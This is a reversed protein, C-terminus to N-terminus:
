VGGGRTLAALRQELYAREAANDTLALAERYAAAAEGRRGARRLLDARAAPLLHYRALSGEAALADLRALGAELAGTMALAVAQNLAVVPSPQMRMLAGYLAAIQAWDTEAAHDARAHCAAIAAQVQYPGPARLTLAQDLLALGREIQARDWRARAQEELTVLRGEADVRADRRSDQLLMLASLGLLEAEGPMLTVLVDALRIAERCLERRILADGVTATYGENFILYLVALVAGVRERLLEPPPVRYPIKAARIKRKARVLRQAMTSEPVLFARAIERTSLGGLASLTLAVQAHPALAPHCCTFVLRLREDPFLDEPGTGSTAHELAESARTSAMERELEALARLAEARRTSAQARRLRDRARNRAVTTIWAGPSRPVGGEAWRALASTFAEQLVDEALELEGFVRVLGALVRGSEERFVREVARAAQADAQESM